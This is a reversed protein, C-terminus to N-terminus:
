ESESREIITPADEEIVAKCYIDRDSAGLTDVLADADILRGHNKPLPTGELITKEYGSLFRPNYQKQYRLSQYLEEDIEIVVQVKSRPKSNQRELEDFSLKGEKLLQSQAETAEIMLKEEKYPREEIQQNRIHRSVSSLYKSFKYLYLELEGKTIDDM